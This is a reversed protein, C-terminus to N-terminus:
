SSMTSIIQRSDSQRSGHWNLEHRQELWENEFLLLSIKHGTPLHSLRSAALTSHSSSWAQFREQNGGLPSIGSLGFFLYIFKEREPSSKKSNQWFVFYWFVVSYILLCESLSKAGIKLTNRFLKLNREFPGQPSADLSRLSCRIFSWLTRNM